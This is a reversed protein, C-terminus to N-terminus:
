RRFILVYALVGVANVMTAIAVKGMAERARDSLDAFPANLWELFRVLLPERGDDLDVGADIAVADMEITEGITIEQGASIVGVGVAQAGQPASQPQAHPRPSSDATIEVEGVIAVGTVDLGGTGVHKAAEERDKAAALRALTDAHHREEEDMERALAAAASPPQATEGATALAPAPSVTEVQKPPLEVGAAAAFSARNSEAEPSGEIVYDDAAEWRAQDILQQARATLSEELAQGRGVGTEGELEEALEAEIESAIDDTDLGGSAAAAEGPGMQKFLDDIAVEPPTGLATMAAAAAERAPTAQVPAKRALKETSSERRARRDVNLLRDLKLEDGGAEGAGGRVDSLLRDVEEGALQALLDDANVPPSVAASSSRDRATSQGLPDPLDIGSQGM